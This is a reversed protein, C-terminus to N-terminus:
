IVILCEAFDLGRGVLDIFKECFHAASRRVKVKEKNESELFRLWIEADEAQHATRFCSGQIAAPVCM